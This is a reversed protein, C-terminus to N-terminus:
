LTVAHWVPDGAVRVLLDYLGRKPPAGKWTALYSGGAGDSKGRDAYTFPAGRLDKVPRPGCSTAPTASHPVVCMAQVGIGPLSKNAGKFDLLKLLVQPSAGTKALKQVRYTVLATSTTTVTNGATDTAVLSITRRGPGSTGLQAGPAKPQPAGANIAVTAACRGKTMGSLADSCGYSVPVSQGVVYTAGNGVSLKSLPRTADYNLQFASQESVNGAQDTCSGVLTVGAADVPGSSGAPPYTRSSCSAIGSGDDSGTWTVSVPSRYWNNADPARSPVGVVGTPPEWERNVTVTSSSSNGAVDECSGTVTSSFGGEPVVQDPSVSSPVVGSQADTCSTHVRFGQNTWGGTYPKGDDTTISMALVPNTVDVTWSMPPSQASQGAVSSTAVFTYTGQAFTTNARCNYAGDDAPPSSCVPRLQGGTTEYFTVVSGPQTTGTWRLNGDRSIHDTDSVGTDAAAITVTPAIASVVNIPAYDRGGGWYSKCLHIQVSSRREGLGPDNLNTNEFGIDDDDVWDPLGLAERCRDRSLESTTFAVDRLVKQNLTGKYFVACFYLYGSGTWGANLDVQDDRNNVPYNPDACGTIGPTLYPGAVGLDAMPNPNGEPSWNVCLYVHEGGETDENLDQAKRTYGDPCAPKADVRNHVLQFATIVPKTTADGDCTRNVRISSVANPGLDTQALSHPGEGFVTMCRSTYNAGNYLAIAGHSYLVLSTAANDAGLTAMDPVDGYIQVGRPFTTGGVDISGTVISAVPPPSAAPDASAAAPLAAVAMTTLLAWVVLLCIKRM